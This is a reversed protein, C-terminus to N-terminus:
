PGTVTIPGVWDSYGDIGCNARVYFDYVVGTYTHNTLQIPNYSTDITTGSGVPQGSGVKHLQWTNEGNMADWSFVLRDSGSVTYIEDLTFNMPDLCSPNLPEELTSQTLPGIWSSYGSDGCKNRVYFDYSTDANLGSIRANSPYTTNYSNITGSGLAFGELGYQIQSGDFDGGSWSLDIHNFSVSDNYLQVNLNGPDECYPNYNLTVFNFPTSWNSYAETENCFVRTYFTYQTQPLLDEVHVNSEPLTLITGSGQTFGFTGYEVQFLASDVDSYWYFSATTNTLNNVDLGAPKSCSSSDSDESSSCGLAFVSIAFLLIFKKMSLIKYVSSSYVLNGIIVIALILM